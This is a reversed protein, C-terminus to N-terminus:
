DLKDQIVEIAKKLQTDFEREVYLRNRYEEPLEVFIDPEIGVGHIYNGSPTFYRSITMKIASGDELVELGQVLGKGFTTTGIITGVKQDKVAGALIESASASNENVLIVLPKRFQHKDDSNLEARKGDKDETYVILGEPLLLDSIFGVVQVSGGPNNRLDIIM